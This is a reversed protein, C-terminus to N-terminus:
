TGNTSITDIATLAGTAADISYTSINDAGFNTVYVFKGSPDIAISSPSTRAATRGMSTLIGTAASITYMSIDNSAANAVYAFKGTPDM